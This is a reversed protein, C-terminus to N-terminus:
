IPHKQIRTVAASVTSSAMVILSPTPPVPTDSMGRWPKLAAWMSGNVIPAWVFRQCFMTINSFCLDSHCLLYFLFSLNEPYGCMSGQLYVFSMWSTWTKHYIQSVTLLKIKSDHFQLDSHVKETPQDVDGVANLFAYYQQRIRSDGIFAIHNYDSWYSIYRLCNRAERFCTCICHWLMVCRTWERARNQTM